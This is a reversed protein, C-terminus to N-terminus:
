NLLLRDAFYNSWIGIGSDIEVISAYRVSNESDQWTILNIKPNLDEIHKLSNRPPIDLGLVLPVTIEKDVGNISLTITVSLSKAGVGFEPKLV